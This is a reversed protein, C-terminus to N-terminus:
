PCLPLCRLEDAGQTNAVRRRSGDRAAVRPHPQKSVGSVHGAAPSAGGRRRGQTHRSSPPGAFHGGYFFSPSCKCDCSPSYTETAVRGYKTCSGMKADQGISRGLHSSHTTGSLPGRSNYRSQRHPARDRRETRPVETTPPQVAVAPAAVASRRSCQAYDSDGGSRAPSPPGGARFHHSTSRLPTKWVM